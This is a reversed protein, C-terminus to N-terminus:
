MIQVHAQRVLRAFTSKPNEMLNKPTDFEIIRGNDM